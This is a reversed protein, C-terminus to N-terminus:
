EARGADGYVFQTKTISEPQFWKLRQIAEFLELAAAATNASYREREDRYRFSLEALLSEGARGATWLILALTASGHGPLTLAPGKYVREFASIGNVAMLPTRDAAQHEDGLMQKLGPYLNVAQQLTKPALGCPSDAESRFTIRSSHSFRSCFPPSIDEEFKRQHKLGRASRLDQGAALYRDKCRAKLTFQLEDRAVRRRLVLQRRRLLHDCSDLFTVTQKQPAAFSGQITIGVQEATERLADGLLRLAARRDAFRRHQLMVKYERSEVRRM